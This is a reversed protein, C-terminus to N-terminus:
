ASTQLGVAKSGHRKLAPGNGFLGGGPPKSSKSGPRPPPSSEYRLGKRWLVDVVNVLARAVKIYGRGKNRTGGDTARDYMKRWRGGKRVAGHAAQIFAWKLTHNGRYGLHRGLPPKTPDQQGTDHCRPALLSYAALAGSHRFRNIDGIEARLVEVLILGFGPIGDLRRALESQILERRLIRSVEALTKRLYELLAVQQQLYALAGPLLQGDAFRGEKCLEALFLRAKGRFPSSGDYFIGHRHFIGHIRNKTQANLQKLGAWLRTLERLDRVDAPPRWVEWWRKGRELPLESLLEADKDNTKVTGRSRRYQEVKYCNSLRVDLGAADMEDTLWGWGFSAEVVVPGSKPWQALRGRLAARDRHELRERCVIDGDEDRMVVQSFEYHVDAGACAVNGYRLESRM